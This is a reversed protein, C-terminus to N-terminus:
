DTEGERFVAQIPISLTDAQQKLVRVKASMGVHVQKRHEATLESVEIRMPFTPLGSSKSRAQSDISVIKGQLEIDPFAPGTIIVPQGIQVHRLNVENVEVVLSVGSLD